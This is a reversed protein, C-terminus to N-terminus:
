ESGNWEEGRKKILKGDKDFICADKIYLGIRDGFEMKEYGKSEIKLNKYRKRDTLKRLNFIITNGDALFNLYLPELNYLVYDLLIDALKHSEIYLDDCTFSNGDKTHGSLMGNDMLVLERDKAEINLNLQRSTGSFDCYHNRPYDTITDFVHAKNNFKRIKERAGLEFKDFYNKNM